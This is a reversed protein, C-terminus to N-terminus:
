FDANMLKTMEIIKDDFVNAFYKTYFLIMDSEIKSLPIGGLKVGDIIGCFDIRSIRGVYYCLLLNPLIKTQFGYFNSFVQQTKIFYHM